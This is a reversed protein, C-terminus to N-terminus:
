EQWAQSLQETVEEDSVQSFDNYWQGISSFPEPQIPCIVEDVKNRLAYVTDPPAVPVAVVISKPNQQLVADIAAHMTSGTALGDDVLIVTKGSLEPHPHDGRYAKERRKLEEREKQEVEKIADDSIAYARIVQTNLVKIGGSAIAGMALEPFGPSGLKRVLMLDLPANLYKAIEYAVPVGGRPLALVILDDRGQYNQLDEALEKGAITRNPIPLQM